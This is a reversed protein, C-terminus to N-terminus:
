QVSTFRRFIAIQLALFAYYVSVSSHSMSLRWTMVTIKRRVIYHFYHGYMVFNRNTCNANVSILEFPIGRLMLFDVFFAVRRQCKSSHRKIETKFVKLEKWPVMLILYLSKDRAKPMKNTLNNQWWTEEFVLKFKREFKHHRM